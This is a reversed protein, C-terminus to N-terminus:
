ARRLLMVAATQTKEAGYKLCLVTDWSLERLFRQLRETEYRRSRFMMFTKDGSKCSVRVDFQLEYSGPVRTVTQLRVTSSIGSIGSIHRRLPGYIWDHHTAPLGNRLALDRDRLETPSGSDGLALQFDLVLLDGPAAFRALEEFFRVEDNLNAITAGLITYVRRSSGADPGAHLVQLRALDHFNAHLAFTSVRRADVTSRALRYASTLLAHSIDLLHLQVASTEPLSAVLAQVMRLESKGDGCGLAHVCIPLSGCLRAARAAIDELPKRHRDTEFLPARCLQAFDSASQGDLYLFTQELPGGPGNLLQRLGAHLAAVDYEPSLWCNPEWAAAEPLRSVDKVRLKLEPVALLAVLTARSPEQRGSEINKITKDSLGARLALRRQSLGAQERRQRLSAGFAGLARPDVPVADAQTAQDDQSLVALAAQLLHVAEGRNAQEDKADRAAQTAQLAIVIQTQAQQLLTTAESESSSPKAM